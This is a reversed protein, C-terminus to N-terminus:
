WVRVGSVQQQILEDNATLIEQNEAYRRLALCGCGFVTTLPTLLLRARLVTTMDGAIVALASHLLEGHL